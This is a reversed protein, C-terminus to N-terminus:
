RLHRLCPGVGVGAGLVAVRVVHSFCVGCGGVSVAGAAVGDGPSVEGEVREYCMSVCVAVCILMSVWACENGYKVTM